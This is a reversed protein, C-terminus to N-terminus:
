SPLHDVGWIFLNDGPQPPAADMDLTHCLVQLRRGPIHIKEVRLLNEQMLTRRAAFYETPSIRAIDEWERWHCGFWMKPSEYVIKQLAIMVLNGSWDELESWRLGGSGPVTKTEARSDTRAGHANSTILNM